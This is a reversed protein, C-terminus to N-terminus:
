HGVPGSVSGVAGGAVPHHLGRKMGEEYAEAAGDGILAIAEEIFRWDMNRWGDWLMERLLERESEALPRMWAAKNAAEGRTYRQSCVISQVQWISLGTSQAIQAYTAGHDWEAMCREAEDNRRQREEQWTPQPHADRVIQLLRTRGLGYERALEWTDQGADYRRVIEANRQTYWESTKTM